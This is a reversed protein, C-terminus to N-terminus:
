ATAGAESGAEEIERRCDDCLLEFEDGRISIGSWYRDGLHPNYVRGCEVCAWDELSEPMMRAAM